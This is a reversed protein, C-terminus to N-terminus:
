GLDITSLITQLYWLPVTKKHRIFASTCLVSDCMVQQTKPFYNYICSVEQQYFIDFPAIMPYNYLKIIWNLICVDVIKGFSLLYHTVTTGSFAIIETLSLKYCNKGNLAIQGEHPLQIIKNNLEFYLRRHILTIKICSLPLILTINKQNSFPFNSSERFCYMQKFCLLSLKTCFKVVM